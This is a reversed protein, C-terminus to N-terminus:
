NSFSGSFWVVDGIQELWEDFDFDDSWLRQFTGTVTKLYQKPIIFRNKLNAFAIPKEGILEFEDDDLIDRLEVKAIKDYLACCSDLEEKM